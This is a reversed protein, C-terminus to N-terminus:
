GHERRKSCNLACHICPFNSDLALTTLDALVERVNSTLELLHLLRSLLPITSKDANADPETALLLRTRDVRELGSNSVHNDTDGLYTSAVSEDPTQVWDTRIM